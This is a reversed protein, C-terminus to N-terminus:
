QMIKKLKELTMAPTIRIRPLEFASWYPTAIGYQTTVASTLGAEQVFEPTDVMYQGAPYAFTTIHAGLKTELEDKSQNIEYLQRDPTAKALDIHHITHAGIEMGQDYADKIQDWTMYGTKGVFGTVIYATAIWGHKQLIPLSQTHFDEYGDDFTLVVSKAPGKGEVADEMTISTYGLSELLTIQDDLAQTSTNLNYGLKDTNPDKTEGVYHYMLIHANANSRRQPQPTAPTLPGEPELNKVTQNPTVPPLAIHSRYYRTFWWVILLSIVVIAFLSSAVQPTILRTKLNPSKPVMNKSQWTAVSRAIVYTGAQQM